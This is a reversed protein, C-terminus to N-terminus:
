KLSRILVQKILNIFSNDFFLIFFPIFVFGFSILRLKIDELNKYKVFKKNNEFFMIKILRLYYFFSIVTLILLFYASYFFSSQILSYFIEYKVFFGGFPPIGSLSFLIIAFIISLFPQNFYLGQLDVLTITKKTLHM